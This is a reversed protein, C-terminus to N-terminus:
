YTALIRCKLANENVVMVTVQVYYIIFTVNSKHKANITYVMFYMHFYLYISSCKVSLSARRKVKIITYMSSACHKHKKIDSLKQNVYDNCNKEDLILIIGQCKM